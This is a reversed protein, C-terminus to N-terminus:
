GAPYRGREGSENEGGAGGEGGVGELDFGVFAFDFTEEGGVALDAGELANGVGSGGDAVEAPLGGLGGGLPVADEGCVVEAVM